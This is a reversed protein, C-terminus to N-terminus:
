RARKTQDLIPQVIAQEAASLSKVWSSAQDPAQWALTQTVTRIASERDPGAPLGRAYDAAAEPRIQLWSELVSQRAGNAREASLSNAWELAVEPNKAVQNRAVQNIMNQSALDGHPGAIFDRVADPEQWMWNWQVKELAATRTAPDPLSALWDFAADREGKGKGFWTEFISACAGNQAAGPEMEAVLQSAKTLDKEAAAKIVGAVAATRAAGKLNDQSWALAAAPDSKGWTEVLGSALSNRFAIDTQATAFAAAARLDAGAWTRMLETALMGRKQPDLTAAYRLGGAPDNKGWVKGVQKLAEQAAYGSSFKLVTEAAHQPDRAAWAAVGAMDPIYNNIHWEAMLRLGTEVDTKMTSSALSMRLNDRASFSPADNLAKIAGAVDSKAWQEFLVSTLDYRSPLTGPMNEPLLYDAYLSSFMGAPDLDAWRAALMRVAAPDDRAIRILTSMEAATAHEAASVLLLTRKAGTAARYAIALPGDITQETEPAPAAVKAASATSNTAAHPFVFAASVGLALAVFCGLITQLTARNM